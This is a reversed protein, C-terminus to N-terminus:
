EIVKLKVRVNFDKPPYYDGQNEMFFRVKYVHGYPMKLQKKIQEYEFYSFLLFEENTDSKIKM